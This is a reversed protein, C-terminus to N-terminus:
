FRPSARHLFAAMQARSVPDGPCFLDNTPPNCGKTIGAAALREVDGEFVSGNDDRFDKSGTDTLDLARVLFAAMEGRSVPDDPCFRDNAPPNCGKTVGAARLANIDGEFVSNDDDDFFDTSSPGLGLARVLFAAMEGRTVDSDPCFSTNAPPNCGKTIGEDRLWVIDNYFVNSFPVDGFVSIAAGADQGYTNQWVSLSVVSFDRAMFTWDGAYDNNTFINGQVFMIADPVTFEMYPSWSPTTGYNAFIGNRSSGSTEFVNDFVKVNQSKWRCNDFYPDNAISGPSCQALSAFPTCYGTSSNHPSNCFRDSNEWIAIGDYNDEFLNNSIEIVGGGPLRPDGGAESIYIAGTVFGPDGGVLANRRFINNRIVANYSIEYFLAHSENDEFLNGDFVFNINNTDAWLGVGLNDHVWNNTIVAGQVAWFKAGGSCGCSDPLGDQDNGTIENHDVVVNRISDDARYMQFGYQGNDRICNYRMVMDTGGMIGAGSNDEITSHEITWGSAQDHNVVGQQDPATFNRITLYAIRVNTAHQTFAFNNVGQGDIIAGPAGVYQNGSKPQVQSFQGNGLTHVGPELWFVTGAPRNQTLNDLNDSTRVRVAGAPLSSPGDLHAGNDCIPAPNGQPLEGADIAQAPRPTMWLASIAVMATLTIRIISKM